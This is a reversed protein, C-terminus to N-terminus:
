FEFQASIKFLRPDLISTPVLWSAFNANVARVPNSNMVNFIDLNARFLRSGGFRFDKTLRLDVQNLREGYM